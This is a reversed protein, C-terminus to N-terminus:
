RGLLRGTLIAAEYFVVMPVALALFSFPDGSPTIVAAIACCAVIAYRRWHRLSRSSVVGIMELGVLFVPYTFVAGFVVCAATYLGLYRSPSFLPATGPGSVSILWDIAKPFVVVATAVGLGFLIVASVTFALTARRENRYLGPRVFRWTQHIWVPASLVAGTYASVKLRTTFGELPGTVVLNGKSINQKPHHDLYSRYPGIMFEILHGYLFWAGLGAVLLAVGCILLRRRLETLHEVWSLEPAGPPDGVQARGGTM